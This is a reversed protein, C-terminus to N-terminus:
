SKPDHSCADGFASLVKKRKTYALQLANSGNKRRTDAHLSANDAHLPHNYALL